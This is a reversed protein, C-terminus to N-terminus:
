CFISKVGKNGSKGGFLLVLRMQTFSPVGPGTGMNREEKM